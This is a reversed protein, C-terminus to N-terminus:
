SISGERLQQYLTFAPQLFPPLGDGPRDAEFRQGPRKAHYLCRQDWHAELATGAKRQLLAYVQSVIQRMGTDYDFGFALPDKELIRNMQSYYSYLVSAMYHDLNTERATEPPFGFVGPEILGPVSQLGRQRQQSLLVSVPNRYLLIFPVRPFIRRLTEYSHLHWSDTKIFCAQQRPTRKQGYWRLAAALCSATSVPAQLPERYPIRLVEDLFPVESLISNEPDCGLLQSLLTSGCRSVHFILASVPLSERDAAWEIMMELSSVPKFRHRHGPLSRCSAITEDFFPETFVRDGLPLWECLGESFPRIMRWPVWNLLVDAQLANM